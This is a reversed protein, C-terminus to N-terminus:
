ENTALTMGNIVVNERANKGLLFFMLSFNWLFKDKDDLFINQRCADHQKDCCKGKDDLSNMQRCTDYQKDCYKGKYDLSNM